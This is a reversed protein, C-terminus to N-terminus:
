VSVKFFTWAMSLAVFHEQDVNSLVRANIFLYILEIDKKDKKMMIMILIKMRRIMIM